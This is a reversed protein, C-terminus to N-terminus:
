FVIKDNSLLNNFAFWGIKINDKYIIFRNEDEDNKWINIFNFWDDKTTLVENLRELIFSNNMLAFLFVSM